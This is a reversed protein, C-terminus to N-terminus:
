GFTRSTTSWVENRPLEGYHTIAKACALALAWAWFWDAHGRSNREADFRLIDGSIIRKISHIQYSLDKDIPIPTMRQQIFKKADTAWTIKEANGFNAGFARMPWAKAANEALNMGLGGKDIYIRSVPLRNMIEALIMYQEDFGMSQMNIALRMPFLSRDRDLGLLTIVSLDHTRGIDMGAVFETEVKSRAIDRELKYIALLAETTDVGRCLAKHWHLNMEQAAIIEEYTIWSVTDDVFICCYEQEFDALVMNEFITKIRDNGFFDVMQYSTLHHAQRIAQKVNTCFAFAEWWPTAKRTFGPYPQMSQAYLEWFKGIAGFPSSGVRLRGGKSLIPLTGKYIEETDHAHAFEDLYVNARSRGRPAKSPVSTLRTGNSFEIRQSSDKIIKPKGNWHLAEYVYRAYRLKEQAEDQNISVFISDRGDLFASAVAEAAVTFSWAIQRSKNEIRMTNDDNLHAIQFHEWRADPVGSAERLDLCEFLLSARNSNLVTRRNQKAAQKTKRRAQKSATKAKSSASRTSARM